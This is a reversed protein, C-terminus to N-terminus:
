IDLSVDDSIPHSVCTLIYDQEKEEKTLGIALKMNIEGTKKKAKCTGCIGNMCSYPINIGEDLAADLISVEPKVRVKLDKGRMNIGITRTTENNKESTGNESPLDVTFSEQNIKDTAVQLAALGQNVQEMMGTPGCLYFCSNPDQWNPCKELILKLNDKSIRGKITHENEEGVELVHIVKFNDPFQKELEDLRKKFIISDPRNNAYFLTVQSNQEFYLTSKAISMLPTIGSGGGFLIINRRATKQVDFTFNGMPNMIKMSQGVKLNDVLYNSVKGGKVRKVTVALTADLNPCSNLSYARREEKGDIEVVLTLFQGPKYKLKKLFPQKFHISIADATEDVLDNIKM